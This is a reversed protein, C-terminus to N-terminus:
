PSKPFMGLEEWAGGNRRSSIIVCEHGDKVFKVRGYDHTDGPIATVTIRPPPVDSGAPPPPAEPGVIGLDLGMAETYAAHRKITAALDFTRELAGPKM